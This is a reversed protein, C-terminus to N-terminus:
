GMIMLSKLNTLNKIAKSTINNSSLDLVLSTLNTLCTISDDSIINNANNTNSKTGSLSLFTLNTLLKLSIDSIIVQKQISIRLNLRTLNTLKSLQNDIILDGSVDLSTLTHINILTFFKILKSYNNNMDKDQWCVKKI